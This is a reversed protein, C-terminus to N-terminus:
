EESIAVLIRKMTDVTHRTLLAEHPQEGAGRHCQTSSRDDTDTLYGRVILVLAEQAVKRLDERFGRYEGM